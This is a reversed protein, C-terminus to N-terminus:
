IGGYILSMDYYFVWYIVLLGCIMYYMPFFVFVRFLCRFCLGGVYLYECDVKIRFHFSPLGFSLAAGFLSWIIGYYIKVRGM